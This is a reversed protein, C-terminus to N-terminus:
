EAGGFFHLVIGTSAWYNNQHLNTGFSTRYYDFDLVRIEWRRSPHLDFGGGVKYTLCNQSTKYGGTGSVTTDSRSGGVLAEVFPTAGWRMHKRYFYRPGFHNGYLVTKTGSVPTIVNYSSDAVIQLWPKFNWGFSGMAGNLNSYSGAGGNM